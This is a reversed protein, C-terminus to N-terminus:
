GGGVSAAEPALLIEEYSLFKLTALDYRFFGFDHVPIEERNAFM